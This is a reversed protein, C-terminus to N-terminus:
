RVSTRATWCSSSASRTSWRHGPVRGPVAARNCPRRSRHRVPEPRRRDPPSLHEQVEPVAASREVVGGVIRLGRQEGAEHEPVAVDARRLLVLASKASQRMVRNPRRATPGSFLFLIPSLVEPRPPSDTIPRRRAQQGFSSSHGTECMERSLQRVRSIVGIDYGIRGALRAFLPGSM